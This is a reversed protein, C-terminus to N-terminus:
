PPTILEALAAHLPHSADLTMSRRPVDALPRTSWIEDVFSFGHSNRGEAEGPSWVGCARAWAVGRAHLAIADAPVLDPDTLFYVCRARQPAPRAHGVSDM